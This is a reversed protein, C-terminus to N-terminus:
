IGMKWCVILFSSSILPFVRQTSSVLSGHFVSDYLAMQHCLLWVAVMREAAHMLYFAAFEQYLAFIYLVTLWSGADRCWSGAPM